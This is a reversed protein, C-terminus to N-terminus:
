RNAEALSAPKAALELLGLLRALGDKAAQLDGFQKAVAM